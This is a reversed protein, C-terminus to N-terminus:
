EIVDALTSDMIFHGGFAFANVMGFVLALGINNALPYLFIINSFGNYLSQVMWAKRKGIRKYLWWWAPPTIAAFAMSALGMVGTWFFGNSYDVPLGPPNIICYNVFLSLVAAFTYIVAYELTESAIFYRM